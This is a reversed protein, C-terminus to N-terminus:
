LEGDRNNGSHHWSLAANESEFPIITSVGLETAKQIILEMREKEPLAQLLIVGLLSETSSSFLDFIVISAKERSLHTVRGRFDNGGADTVTVIRGVRVGQFRLAELPPGEIFIERGVGVKQDLLIRDIM